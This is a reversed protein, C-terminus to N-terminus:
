GASSYWYRAGLFTVIKAPSQESVDRQGLEPQDRRHVWAV